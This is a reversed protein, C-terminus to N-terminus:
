RILKLHDVSEKFKDWGLYSQMVHIHLEYGLRYAKNMHHRNKISKYKNMFTEVHRFIAIDRDTIDADSYKEIDTFIDKIFLKNYKM